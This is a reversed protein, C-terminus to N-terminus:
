AAEDEQAEQAEQAEQEEQAKRLAEAAKDAAQNAEVREKKAFVEANKAMTATVNAEANEVVAEQEAQAVADALDSQTEPITTLTPPNKM